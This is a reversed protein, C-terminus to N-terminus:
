PTIVTQVEATDLVLGNRILKIEARYTGQSWAAGRLKRGAFRFARAQTRDIQATQDVVTGDSGMLRLTLTDGERPGLMLAWIILAESRSPLAPLTGLGELVKAYDPPTSTIGAATIAGGVYAIPMDWLGPRQDIECTNPNQPRFPDVVQGNKRVTLHVHPFETRGSLGIKGIPQGPLVTDGIAVIVSGLALHCLQSTWGNGHDIAIGNGCDRGGLSPANPANSAIDPMEDRIGTVTGGAPALVAVGATMESLTAVAFDTGSHGDYVLPGCTFDQAGPGPDQDVYNQIHCTDGLTCDVPLSLRFEAFSPGAMCLMALSISSAHLKM